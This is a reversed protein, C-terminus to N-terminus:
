VLIIELIIMEFVNHYNHYLLGESDHNVFNGVLTLRDACTNGEHFIHSIFSRIIHM